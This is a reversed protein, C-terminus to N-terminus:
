PTTGDEGPIMSQITTSFTKPNLVEAARRREDSTTPLKSAKERKGRRLFCVFLSDQLNVPTQVGSSGDVPAISGGSSVSSRVCRHVFCFWYDASLFRAVLMFVRCQLFTRFCSTTTNRVTTRTLLNLPHHNSPDGSASYSSLMNLM